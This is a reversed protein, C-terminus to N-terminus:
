NGKIEIMVENRTMWPPTWPANYGAYQPEGKIVVGDKKLLDILELKKSQVRSETRIWSFRIVAVKKEPITEIKVRPDSPTPLTELTYSRPMGFTITHYEGDINSSVPTTMSISESKSTEEVVPATMAIDQKKVNNGFIYGAIIRFGENLAENYSGKVTTQAVIHEPYLRIEYGNKSAIVSYEASEVRSSFFGWISWLVIVAIISYIIIMPTTYCGETKIKYM